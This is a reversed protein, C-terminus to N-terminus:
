DCVLTNGVWVCGDAVTRTTSETTGATPEKGYPPEYGCRRARAESTFISKGNGPEVTYTSGDDFHLVIKSLQKAM